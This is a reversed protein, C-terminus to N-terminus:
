RSPSKVSKWRIPPNVAERKGPADEALFRDLPRNRLHRGGELAPAVVGRVADEALEAGHQDLDHQDVAARKQLVHGGIGQLPGALARRERGPGTASVEVTNMPRDGGESVGAWRGLGDLIGSRSPMGSGQAAITSRQCSVEVSVGFTVFEPGDHGLCAPPQSGLM